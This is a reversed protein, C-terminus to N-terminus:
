GIAHLHVIVDHTCVETGNPLRNVRVITQSVDNFVITAMVIEEATYELNALEISVTVVPATKFLNNPYTFTVGGHMYSQADSVYAIHAQKFRGPRIEIKSLLPGSEQTNIISFLFMSLSFITIKISQEM